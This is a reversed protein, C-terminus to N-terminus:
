KAKASPPKLNLHQNLLIELHEVSNLPGSSITHGVILQPMVPTDTVNWNALHLKCDTAIQQDVWPDALAAQLKDAGVLGAAFQRAQEVPAPREPQFVWDDFGRFAGPDARWVALGLRAYDCANPVSHIRAPLFPNCNTSIPMPLCVIGLQPGLRRQVQSLMPHLTRCHPCTYDFLCVIVNSADPSGMMPVTDLKLRFQNSYLSLLRPGVLRADPTAELSSAVSTQASTNTLNTRTQKSPHSLGPQLVKVLNREKQVLLQGGALVTVGAVGILAVLLAGSRPVGRRGSGTAWMPTEPDAALPVNKLCLLAALFGCAHATMCFKCFAKIVLVQLGVFWLAAGAVIVSLAIIAAWSGREDDPSISKQLLVTAGLLVAYVLLAPVSVPIDLWYAWRSQLVKNCGSEAGCGAVPGNHFSVWALYGAGLIAIGLLVRACILWAPTARRASPSSQDGTESM